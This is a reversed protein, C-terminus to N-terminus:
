PASRPWSPGWPSCRCKPYPLGLGSPLGQQGLVRGRIGEVCGWIRNSWVCTLEPKLLFPTLTDTVPVEVICMSMGAMPTFMVKLPSTKWM